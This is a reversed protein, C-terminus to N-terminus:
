RKRYERPTLGVERSFFRALHAQNPHGTEYAIQDVSMDTALLMRAIHEARRRNIEKRISHGLQQRFRRGLSWQSIYTARVVDGVSINRHANQRIFHLAKVVEEDEVALVDTSARPVLRGAAVPIDDETGGGAMLRDLAAAAEYGAQETAFAVSSLQPVTLECVLEDNDVGILAVEEPVRIGHLRCMEFLSLAFDDNCAM